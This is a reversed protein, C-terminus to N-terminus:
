EEIDDDSLWGGQLGDGGDDVQSPSFMVGRRRNTAEEEIVASVNMEGPDDEDALLPNKSKSWFHLTAFSDYTPPISPDRGSEALARLLTGAECVVATDSWGGSIGVETRQQDLWGLADAIGARAQRSRSLVDFFEPKYNKQGRRIVPSPLAHLTGLALTQFAHPLLSTNYPWVDGESITDVITLNDMLDECEEITDCYQTYNQHIYLSLLSTDAPSEAYLTKRPPEEDDGPDGYRKNYLLKGIIHFLALSQERRTMAELVGRVSKSKKGKAKGKGKTPLDVICAFQLAMMASRIDGQSTEMIIDVAEKSPKAHSEYTPLSFIRDMLVSIAKRMITVAVPNFQIEMFYPSNFLQPPVVSRVDLGDDIVSRAYYGREDKAEGRAGTASIIFVIPCAPPEESTAFAVLSTHFADRVTPHFINPLDEILILQRKKNPPTTSSNETNPTSSSPAFALTRYSAARDLFNQFKLSMSEYDGYEDDEDYNEDRGNKWEIIELDLEKALVRITATKGVGAPGTLALVRRYKRLRGNPGGDLADLLWGRVDAIKKKHVALEAETMPAFQEVWLKDDVEHDVTEKEKGKATSPTSRSNSDPQVLLHSLNRHMQTLPRVPKKTVGLSELTLTSTKKTITSKSPGPAKKSGKKSSSSKASVM